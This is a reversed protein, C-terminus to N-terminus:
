SLCHRDQSWASQGASSRRGSCRIMDEDADRLRRISLRWEIAGEWFGREFSTSRPLKPSDGRPLLPRAFFTSGPM